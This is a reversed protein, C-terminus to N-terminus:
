TDYTSTSLACTLQVQIIFNVLLTVCGSAVELSGKSSYLLRCGLRTAVVDGYRHSIGGWDHQIQTWVRTKLHSYVRELTASTTGRIHGLASGVM